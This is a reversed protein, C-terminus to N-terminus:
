LKNKYTVLNFRKRTRKEKKETFTELQEDPAAERHGAVLVAPLILLLELGHFARDTLIGTVEAWYVGALVALSVACVIIKKM